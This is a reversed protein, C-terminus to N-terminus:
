GPGEASVVMERSPLARGLQHQAFDALAWAPRVDLTADIERLPTRRLQEVRALWAPSISLGGACRAHAAGGAEASFVMPAEIPQGCRACRELVPRLGAFTLAKAELALRHPPGMPAEAELAELWAELLGFLRESEGHEPALRPVLDCGWGLYAFRLLDERPRRPAARIALEGASPLESRGHRLEVRIRAGAEIASRRAGRAGRVM